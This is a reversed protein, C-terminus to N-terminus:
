CVSKGLVWGFIQATPPIEPTHEDPHLPTIQSVAQRRHSPSIVSRYSKPTKAQRWFNPFCFFLIGFPFEGVLNTIFTNIESNSNSPLGRPSPCTEKTVM